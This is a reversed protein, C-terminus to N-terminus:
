KLHWVPKLNLGATHPLWLSWVTIEVWLESYKVSFVAHM